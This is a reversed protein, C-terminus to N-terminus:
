ERKTLYIFGPANPAADRFAVHGEADTVAEFRIAFGLDYVENFRTRYTIRGYVFIFQTRNTLLAWREPTITVPLPNDLVSTVGGGAPISAIFPNPIYVPQHPLNADYLVNATQDIVNAPQRGSNAIRFSILPQQNPGLNAIRWDGIGIVPSEAIRLAQEAVEASKQAARANKAAIRDSSILFGIQFAAVLVLLSTFVALAATYAVMKQDSAIKAREVPSIENSSNQQASQEQRNNSDPVIKESPFLSTWLVFGLFLFVIVFIAVASYKSLIELM